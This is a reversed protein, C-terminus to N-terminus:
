FRPSSYIELYYGLTSFWTYYKLLETALSLHFINSFRFEGIFSFNFCVKDIGEDFKLLCSYIEMLDPTLVAFRVFNSDWDFYTRDTGQICFEFQYCFSWKTYIFVM